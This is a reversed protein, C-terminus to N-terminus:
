GVRDYVEFFYMENLGKFLIEALISLVSGVDFHHSLIKSHTHIHYQTEDLNKECNQHKKKISITPPPTWNPGSPVAAV